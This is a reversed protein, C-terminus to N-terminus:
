ATAEEATGRLRGLQVTWFVAFVASSGILAAAAGTAGYLAAFVLVLPVLVVIELLQAATRLGPRGISVPFSKTWGFVLQIAAAVLMLRVADTAGAYRAGYVWRVLTPMALWLLPVGVIALAITGGIYRNLLAFARHARGHEVDRTQEALLVLRVPASLSAFATQPAQAIRFYGIDVPRAVIGVLVTPLLGRLSTLGSAITSQVAFSRIAPRDDGLSTSAPHAPYRRLVALGIVSMTLTSIAQAVVIGVFAQVVGLSAGIAIAALRLAMSWALLAGRVDYRNRLLLIASGMGEPAQILPVLAAVLLAGRLGGVNWIWPALAAAGVVALGGVAGGATKIALAVRLLRHFRGWDARAIYRNGFKVVVEEVTVDLFLQLLGTIAFVLAFRSFDIKSLERAAVVSGLIGLLASGYISVATVARRFVVSFGM